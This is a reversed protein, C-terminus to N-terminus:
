AGGCAHAADPMSFSRGTRLNEIRYIKGRDDGPPCNKPLAELCAKVKDGVKSEAAAPIQDYSVLSLGNSFEIATGSDAVETLRTGVFEVQTDVCDGVKRPLDGQLQPAANSGQPANPEQPARPDPQQRPAAPHDFPDKSAPGKNFPDSSAPAQNLYGAVQSSNAQAQAQTQARTNCYQIAQTANRTGALSITDIKRQDFYVELRMSAAFADVFGQNLGQLLLGNAIGTSQGGFSRRGDFVYNVNYSEGEKISQWEQNTYSFFWDGRRVDMGVHYSTGQDSMSSALCILNGSDFNIVWNGLTRPYVDSQIQPAPAAPARHRRPESYYRRRPESYYRREYYRPEEYYYTRRTRKNQVHSYIAAGILAGVVGAALANGRRAHAEEVPTMQALIFVLALTLAPTRM